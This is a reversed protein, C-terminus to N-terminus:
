GSERIRVHHDDAVWLCRELANQGLLAIVREVIRVLAPVTQVMPRLVIIGAYQDTPYRRIDSFDLDLTVIARNEAQCVAALAPDASGTLNQDHVSLADHSHQRLLEAIDVPLNEDIKFRM